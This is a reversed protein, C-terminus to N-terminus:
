IHKNEEPKLGKKLNEELKDKGINSQIILVSCIIFLGISIYIPNEAFFNILYNM